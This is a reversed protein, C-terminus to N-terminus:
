MDKFFMNFQQTVAPHLVVSSDSLFFTYLQGFGTTGTEDYELVRRALKHGPIWLKRSVQMSGGPAVSNTARVQIVMDKIVKFRPRDVNQFIYPAFPYLVYPTSAGINLFHNVLPTYSVDSDLVQILLCRINNFEDYGSTTSGSALHLQWQIKDVWLRKGVRDFADAGIPVASMKLFLGASSVSSTTGNVVHYKQEANAYHVRRILSVLDTGRRRKAFRRRRRWRYGYYPM